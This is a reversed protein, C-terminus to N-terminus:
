FSFHKNTPYDIENRLSELCGYINVWFNLGETNRKEIKNCQFSIYILGIHNYQDNRM